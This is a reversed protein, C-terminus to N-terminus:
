ALDTLTTAAAHAALDDMDDGQARNSLIEVDREAM